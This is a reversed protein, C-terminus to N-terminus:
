EQGEIYNGAAWQRLLAGATDNYLNYRKGDGKMEIQPVYKDPIFARIENLDVIIRGHSTKINYLRPM